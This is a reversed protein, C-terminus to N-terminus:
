YTSYALNYIGKGYFILQSPESACNMILDNENSAVCTVVTENNEDTGNVALFSNRSNTSELVVIGRNRLTSLVRPNGTSLAAGTGPPLINWDIVYGDMVSCILQIQSGVPAVVSGPHEM